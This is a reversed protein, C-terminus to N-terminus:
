KQKEKAVPKDKMEKKAAAELDAKTTGIVLGQAGVGFSSLPIKVRAAGTSVVVGESDISEVKGVEGGAQDSVKAGAKIDATTAAKLQTTTQTTQTTTQTSPPTTAAPPTQTTQTTTQTTTAPPPPTTTEAPPTQAIATIPIVALTAILIKLNPRM